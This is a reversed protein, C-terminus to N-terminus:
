AATASLQHKQEGWASRDPNYLLAEAMHIHKSGRTRLLLLCISGPAGTRKDQGQEARTASDWLRMALLCAVGSTCCLELPTFRMHVRTLDPASRRGNGMGVICSSAGSTAASVEREQHVPPHPHALRAALCRSSPRGCGPLAVGLCCPPVTCGCGCRGPRVILETGATDTGCCRRGRTGQLAPSPARPAPPCTTRRASQPRLWCVSNNFSYM